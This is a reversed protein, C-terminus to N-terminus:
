PSRGKDKKTQSEKPKEIESAKMEKVEKSNDQNSKYSKLFMRVERDILPDNFFTKLTEVISSSHLSDIDIKQKIEKVVSFPIYM